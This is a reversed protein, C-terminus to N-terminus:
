NTGNEVTKTSNSASTTGNTASSPEFLERMEKLTENLLNTFRLANTKGSSGKCSVHFFIKQNGPIMYSVGYGDDSVPGFGGGPSVMNKFRPLDCSPTNIMQQQPQQSTSLTWPITLATKLFDSEKGMGKCVVFLGFLHRDIGGGCMADRYLKQHKVCARQLLKIKEESTKQKDVMAKVFDQSEVTLSRVTETRGLLYLRTMSSEYVLVFKGSDKYYALQLAMQVFADPSVKCKKIFGKGYADHDSVVLELDDNNKQCFSIARQITAELPKPVEWVLREPQTVSAQTVRSDIDICRGESDYLAPSELVENTMCYEGAHAIVPADAWSHEVNMGFRGDSFIVLTFSKDFWISKGDGHLLYKGRQSFDEFAKTELIVMFMASDVVDMSEKNVGKTFHQQRTKAWETRDIGTLSSLSKAAESYDGEHKDADEIIWQFHKEMTSPQLPQGKKDFMNVKYIVGKRQVAIHKSQATSFHVLEDIDEGPIRVTSFMREYQAMCLPITNRIVLPLLEERDCLRKFSHYQYCVGAARSVQKHTPQWYSEDLIYYNSNIAIPSRGMLYVYKERQNHKSSKINKLIREM